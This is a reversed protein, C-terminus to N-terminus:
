DCTLPVPEQFGGDPFLKPPKSGTACIVIRGRDLTEKGKQMVEILASNFDVNKSNINDLTRLYQEYSSFFMNVQPAIVPGFISVRETNAHYYSPKPNLESVMSTSVERGDSSNVTLLGNSIRMSALTPPHGWDELFAFKWGVSKYAEILEALFLTKEGTNSDREPIRVLQDTSPSVNASLADRLPLPQNFFVSSLLLSVVAVVAILFTWVLIKAPLDFNLRNLKAAQAFVLFIFMLGVLSIVGFVITEYSTGFKTFTVVIAALGAVAIAYKFAPTSERAARIFSGPTLFNEIKNPGLKPSKMVM